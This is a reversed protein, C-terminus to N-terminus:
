LKLNYNSKPSLSSKRATFPIYIYFNKSFYLLKVSRVEIHDWVNCVNLQINSIFNMLRPTLPNLLQPSTAKGINPVSHKYLFFQNKRM